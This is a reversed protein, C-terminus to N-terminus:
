RKPTPRPQPIPRPGIYPQPGITRRQAAMMAEERERQMDQPSLYECEFMFNTFNDVVAPPIPLRRDAMFQHNPKVLIGPFFRRRRVEPLLRCETVIPPGAAAAQNVQRRFSGWRWYQLQGEDVLMANTGGSVQLKFVWENLNAPNLSALTPYQVVYSPTAPAPLVNNDEFLFMSNVRNHFRPFLDFNVHTTVTDVRLHKMYTNGSKRVLHLPQWEIVLMPPDTILVSGNVLDTYNFEMLSDKLVRMPKDFYYPYFFPAAPVNDLVLVEDVLFQLRPCLANSDILNTNQPTRHGMVHFGVIAMDLPAIKQKLQAVLPNFVMIQLM